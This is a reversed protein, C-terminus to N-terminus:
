LSGKQYFIETVFSLGELEFYQSVCSFTAGYYTRLNGGSAVIPPTVAISGLLSEVRMQVGGAAMNALEGFADKMEADMNQREEMLLAEALKLATKKPAALCLGGRLGQSFSITAIFDVPLSFHRQQSDGAVIKVSLMAEAIEQITEQMHAFFQEPQMRRM